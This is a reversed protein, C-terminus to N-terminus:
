GTHELLSCIQEWHTGHMEMSDGFHTSLRVSGAAGGGRGGKQLALAAVPVVM